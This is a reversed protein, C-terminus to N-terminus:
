PAVPAVPAVPPAVYPAVEDLPYELCYPLVPTLPTDPLMPPPREPLPTLPLIPPPLTVPEESEELPTVPLMPPAILPAVPFKEDVEPLVVKVLPVVPVPDAVPVPPDDVPPELEYVLLYPCFQDGQDLM